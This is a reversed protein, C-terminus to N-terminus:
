VACSLICCSLNRQLSSATHTDKYIDCAWTCNTNDRGKPSNMPSTEQQCRIIGPPGKAQNVEWLVLAPSANSISAEM